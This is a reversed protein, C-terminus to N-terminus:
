VTLSTVTLARRRGSADAAAAVRQALDDVQPARQADDSLTARILQELDDIM